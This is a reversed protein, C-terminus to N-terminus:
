LRLWFDKPCKDAPIRIRPIRSDKPRFLAFNPNSDPFKNLYGVAKRNHVKEFIGVVVRYLLYKEVIILNIM